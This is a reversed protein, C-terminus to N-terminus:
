KTFLKYRQATAKMTPQRVPLNESEGPLFLDQANGWIPAMTNTHTFTYPITAITMVVNTMIHTYVTIVFPKVKMISPDAPFTM